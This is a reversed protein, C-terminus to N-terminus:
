KKFTSALSMIFYIAVTMLNAIIIWAPTSPYTLAIGLFTIGWLIAVSFSLRPYFRTRSPYIYKIPVFVMVVCVALVVLNIVPSGELLLLYVAMANWYDPFGKFFYEHSEDTKADVQTFQYASALLILSCIPIALAPPVLPFQIILFCPVVVYNFYDIINDLLAGDVGAAYVKTHFRRALFGDFGDVFMAVAMWIFMARYDQQQIALITLLGWVAGSATFLHVGWALAQRLPTPPPYTISSSM